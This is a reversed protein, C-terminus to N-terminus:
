ILQLFSRKAKGGSTMYTFQLLHDSINHSDVGCIWDMQAGAAM